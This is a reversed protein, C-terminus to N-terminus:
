GGKGAHLAIAPSLRTEDTDSSADCDAPIVEAILSGPLTEDTLALM